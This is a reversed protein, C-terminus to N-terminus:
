LIWNQSFEFLSSFHYQAHHLKKIGVSICLMGLQHGFIMDSDSDGIMISTKFDIEPFDHLASYAMGPAPKRFQMTDSQLETAYYIADPAAYHAKLTAHLERHIDMLQSETMLGKAVGQQNTVICIRKFQKRLTKLADIAGTEFEFANWSKIYDNDLKRNIVGDRDLFLTTYHKPNTNQYNM